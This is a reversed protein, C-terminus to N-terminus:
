EDVPLVPSTATAERSGAGAGRRLANSITQGARLLPPLCRRELEDRELRAASASVSLGALTLGDDGTIPAAIGRLGLELEQDVLAWGQGRVHTIVERLHRRDTITHSTYAHLPWHALFRDLEEPPLGALLVRGTATAHAPLRSGVGGAISLLHGTHVRAVYVIDPPALLAMSCWQNLERVLDQMVPQAVEVPTLSSLCRTGLNLVRPTLSFRRGSSRVYGLRELTLLIRRATAPTLSALTAVESLTMARHEDSFVEIVALGRELSQLPPEARTPVARDDAPVPEPSSRVVADSASV